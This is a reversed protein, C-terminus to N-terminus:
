ALFATGTGVFSFILFAAPLAQDPRGVAFGFVIGSYILFDLVIDLYGGLDTVGVHRAVAGDLGDAADDIGGRGIDIVVFRPAAAVM